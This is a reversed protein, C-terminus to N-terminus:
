QWSRSRPALSCSSGTFASWRFSSTTAGPDRLFLFIVVMALLGGLLAAKVVEGIAQDIFESQDDVTILAMGAPLAGGFGALVEHVARAVAVTNADGEKYVAIEVAERGNMRIVAQREKYRQEVAAVDGLYVPRGDGAAVILGAIEPVSEFQNVTRVLYRQVGDELRGASVNVNEAALRASLAAVTIGLQALKQEDVLIHVEDELGGSIKVAAVGAVPELRKKIEEDAFRRLAKLDDAPDALAASGSGFSLGLRIIPDTAPNFRLIQPRSAEVPLQLIELKERVDLGAMDMDSGWAFQLIVDSQGARSVSKVAQVNKVM